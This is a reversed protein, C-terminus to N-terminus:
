PPTVYCKNKHIPTATKTYHRKNLSIAHEIISNKHGCQSLSQRLYRQESLMDDPKSALNDTRHFLTKVLGLKEHM